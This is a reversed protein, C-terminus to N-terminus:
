YTYGYLEVDAAFTEAVRARTVDNYYDHYHGHETINKRPHAEVAELGVRKRIENVSEDFTELRGVFDVTRGPASLTESQPVSLRPVEDLGELVFRDFSDHYQMLPEWVEPLRDVRDRAWRAGEDYRLKIRAGMAWWSLMRDWPNRVMGCSWYDTLQPEAQLLTAYSSHRKAGKVKRADPVHQDFIADISSGGTKQVHVFVVRHSDSVRVYKEEPPRPRRLM